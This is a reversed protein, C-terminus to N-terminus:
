IAQTKQLQREIQRLEMGVITELETGQKALKEALAYMKKKEIATIELRLAKDRYAYFQKLDQEVALGFKENVGFIQRLMYSISKGDESLEIHAVKAHNNKEIALNYIWADDVSNVVFPSHTSIFVQANPLLKQIVPLIKRQWEIHLHVEIEDLFLIINRDFIPMDNVWMLDELRMCLDALWSIISKLGDPLVDLDHETDNYWIVPNKLFKDLKFKVEYGTIEGIAKELRHITDTYNHAKHKLGEMQAYSRRLLSSSIWNDINFAFNPEKVFELSQYLSNKKHTVKADEALNSFNLWRYGSYAFLAYDFVCERLDTRRFDARYMAIEIHDDGVLHLHSLGHPCGTYQIFIDGINNKETHLHLTAGSTENKNRLYKCINNTNKECILEQKDKVLAVQEFGAALTKLITSKGSGNTGTFIHIEAKGKSPCPQFDITEDEFVGINKLNVRKIRM